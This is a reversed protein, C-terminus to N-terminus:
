RAKSNCRDRLKGSCKFMVVRRASLMMSDGTAPNRGCRQSKERVCFNGFGSILVDEGSALTEKMIRLLSEVSQVAENRPLRVAEAVTQVIDAKTLAM